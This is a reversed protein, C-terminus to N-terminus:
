VGIYTKAHKYFMLTYIGRHFFFFFCSSGGERDFSMSYSKFFVGDSTSIYYTLSTCLPCAWDLKTELEHQVMLLLTLPELKRTLGLLCSRPRWGWACEHMCALVHPCTKKETGKAKIPSEETQYIICYNYTTWMVRYIRFREGSIHERHPQYPTIHDM